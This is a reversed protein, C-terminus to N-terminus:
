AYRQIRQARTRERRESFGDHEETQLVRERFAEYVFPYDEICRALSYLDQGTALAM